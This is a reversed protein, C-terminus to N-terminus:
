TTSAGAPTFPITVSLVTGHGPESEIALGGGLAALRARLARLGYGGALTPETDALSTPDFGVGDDIVDLRVDSDDRTVTVTVTNADAHRRVNALAGQAARLLTVPMRRVTAVRSPLPGAKRRLPAM